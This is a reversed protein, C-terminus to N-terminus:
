ELDFSQAIQTNTVIPKAGSIDITYRGKYSVSGYASNVQKGAGTALDFKVSIVLTATKGDESITLDYQAIARTGTARRTYQGCHQASTRSGVM